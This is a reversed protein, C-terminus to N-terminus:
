KNGFLSLIQLLIGPAPVAQKIKMYLTQIAMVGLFHICFLQQNGAVQLFKDKLLMVTWSLTYVCKEKECM